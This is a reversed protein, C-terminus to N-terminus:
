SSSGAWERSPKTARWAMTVLTRPLKVAKVPLTCRSLASGVWDRASTLM